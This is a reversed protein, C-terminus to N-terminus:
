SHFCVNTRVDDVLFSKEKVTPYGNLHIERFLKINVGVASAAIEGDPGILPQAPDDSAMPIRYEFQEESLEKVLHLSSEKGEPLQTGLFRVTKVAQLYTFSM